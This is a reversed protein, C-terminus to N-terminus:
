PAPPFRLEFTTGRGPASNVRVEGRANEVTALVVPLGLGTGRGPPKTTYFPEFLRSMASEDIGVGTDTVAITVWGISSRSTAIAIEGAVPMADRANVVLNIIAQELQREDIQIHGVGETLTLRLRHGTALTKL